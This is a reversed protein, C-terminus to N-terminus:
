SIVCYYYFPTCSQEAAHSYQRIRREPVMRRVTVIQIQSDPRWFIEISSAIAKLPM